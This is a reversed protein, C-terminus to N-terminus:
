DGKHHSPSDSECRANSRTCHSMLRSELYKIKACKQANIKTKYRSFLNFPSLFITVHENAVNYKPFIYIRMAVPFSFSFFILVLYMYLCM